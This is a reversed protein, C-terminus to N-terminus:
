RFLNWTGEVVGGLLEFIGHTLSTVAYLIATGASVSVKPDHLKGTVRVPFEQMRDNKVFLNCDLEDKNFDIRGGGRVRMEDNQFFLNSSRAVGGQMNGSASLRRFNEARSYRGNRDKTRYSGDIVAVGWTGSLAAPMQGPGTLHASMESEVSALGRLDRKDDRDRSIGDLRVNLARARSTYSLGRDFHFDGSARLRSGYFAGELAPIALHGDRLSFRTTMQQMQLRMFRVKDVDLTGQASIGKMFRLDWPAGTAKSRGKSRVQEPFLEALLRDLDFVASHLRLDLQPVDGKWSLGADGDLQQWGLTCRLDKLKLSDTGGSAAGKLQLSNLSAPLAAPATGRILRLSNKLDRCALDLDGDWVLGGRGSGVDLDGRIQVGLVSATMKKLKLGGPGACSSNGTAELDLGRPLFDKGRPALHLRLSGPLDQWAVFERGGFWVLGDLSQDLKLDASELAATWRGTFGARAPTPRLDRRATQLDLRLSLADFPLEAQRGAPLAGKSGRATVSGRMSKLFLDLDAGRSTIAAQASLTGRRVPLLDFDRVLKGGHVKDLRLDIDFTPMDDPGGIACRGKLRGDYFDGDARIVATGNGAKDPTGPEIVVHAGGIDVPGYHVTRANLRIDYGIHLDTAPDPPPLPTSRSARLSTLPGHPFYVQLPLTGVAEPIARGLVVEPATLDLAVVPEAWRAVGGSGTFRAGSSHAVIHPVRLGEADMEFELLSDTINDLAMQLGPALGRAFGLWRTLSLRHAQLSGNLVPGRQRDLLLSGDLTASDEGLELLIRELRIPPQTGGAVPPVPRPADAAQAAPAVDQADQAADPAPSPSLPPSASRVPSVPLDPSAPTAAGTAALNEPAPLFVERLMRRVSAQPANRDQSLRGAVAFPIPEDDQMLDGRLEHDLQWGSATATLDLRARLRPLHPPLHLLTALRLRPTDSLFRLPRSRGELSLNELDLFPVAAGAALNRIMGAQLRGRVDQLGRLHLVCSLNGVRLASGDGAQLSVNGQEVELQLSGPLLAALRAAPDGNPAAGSPADALRRLDLTPLPLVGSLVPNQLALYELELRGRLLATLRPRLRVTRVSANLDKGRVRVDEARIAPPLWSLGVSRVQLELGTRRTVGELLYHTIAVSDHQVYLMGAGALLVLGLLLAALCRLLRRPRRSSEPM